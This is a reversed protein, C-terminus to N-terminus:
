RELLRFALELTAPVAHLEYPPLVGPGCSASGLGQQGVDLNLTLVDRPVLDTPHRAADLDESTWPRVTLDFRGSVHLGPGGGTLEAWRVESRNGNEQPFVYPTQLGAVSSHWRGLRVGARSDPYSEGPGLGYWAVDTLHNPVSFRLGLRPLPVTWGGSPVFEAKLLLSEGAMSWRYTTTVGADSAAPSTRVVVVTTEGETAFSVLRHRLRHLGMERWYEDLKVGHRGCDNDTPARWLDLRPGDVALAGIRTLMGTYPDFWSPDVAHSVTAPPTHAGFTSQGFAVEHGAPVLATAERTVARVTIVTGHGAEPLSVTVTQHPLLVPVDLEDEDVRHGDREAFWEFRLHGTDVHDYRSTVTVASPAVAIHVPAVVAAFQLLGPSPTRDPFVLGDAIFNSDHLPEGFDGGYAFFAKGDVTETAIGHDIWEWVFGGQCRPHSEFLEQYEVLGGPGNGMAHGYECLVFPVSRRHADLGADTTVPELGQGIAAVEAHTAYMRSYVDVYGSDWDGEYHVPRTDRGHAWAAMAALNQGTGAENGLSWMVVCAHNKDREITRSIRELYADRWRPDDSPNNRWDAFFFGHTELDCEDIVWLGHEDALDLFDPHPPYHSTRVANINHQKMLLVDELMAEAPVARGYRPHWEHRNVGRFVIRAGNVTLIGDVIEVTRFGIRLSVTETDTSVTADYLRPREASWPVADVTYTDAADVEVLGLEPVSLRAGPVTEVRLTGDAKAHVFVDDVGGAPRFLLTVSRFIGSLWWMDQDELYSAPSWQHVRLAIVNTGPRLASGVEFEVALRSGTSWGMREGNVWLTFLSDVGDFRLLSSGSPWEAPLDFTLVYDGTPNEDPVFPPDIPFPYRVNTYAPRGWAADPTLAGPGQLQWHGPVTITGWGAVDGALFDVPADARRSLRFQWDGDLSLSPADTRLRARPAVRGEGPCFSTLISGDFTV